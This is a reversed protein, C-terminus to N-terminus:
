RYMWFRVRFNKNLIMRLPPLALYAANGSQITYSNYRALALGTHPGCTPYTGVSQQDFVATSPSVPINFWGLPPFLTGEFGQTYPYTTITPDYSTGTVTVDHATKTLTDTIRVIASKVGLGTASFAINVTMTQGSNLVKPYTNSDTLVFNTPNTGARTISSITLAAGGTNSITLTQAASTTNVITMGFDISGPNVNFSAGTPINGMTIQINPRQSSLTGTGTPASSDLQWNEVMNAGSVSYQFGSGSSSGTGSSGYNCEVLVLLNNGSYPYDTIDVNMWANATPATISADYVLTAGSIMNAWTDASLSTATVTKLYIKTPIAATTAITPYWGLNNVTGSLPVETSLFLNASREFGYYTTVPRRSTTTETGITIISSNHPTASVTNTASSEGTPSSYVATVYYTYTTGNIVSTDDYAVGTQTTLYTSNRYIKYGTLTTGAAPVAATWSLSVKANTGNATLTGPANFVANPWAIYDVWACDSGSTVSGDKMYEWKLIHDGGTINFAAMSWAVEGSWQGKVVGDIYFKLYDYGSESSVKYFFSVQGTVEPVTLQMATSQSHTITGSKASKAGNFYTSTDISWSANGSLIWPYSAFNNEFNEDLDFLPDLNSYTFTISNGASSGINTLNLNGNSDDYLYPKPNTYNNILTRGAEVSFYASSVDGNVTTTGNPRYVYVEDPPGDANGSAATNIRYVLLGSGPLSSEFTGTKKRYELVFYQGSNPSNIRYCNNTSTALSNLTYTGPTSIVPISSIWLGYKYKMYAGMHQPPNQDSEMIDWSGVPSVPQTTYHYLDPAGLSHFMEHCLVGVGRSAMFLSLQFNYDYVRKGNIYAYQSYLSWRHPWLLEAWGDSNGQIIFCVNDVKGDGDADVTLTSPIGSSVGNVANVLLTHERSTSNSSTYGDPNTTADYPSYYARPHSDQYSLVTTSPAPYFTTSINLQGYSAESFYNQMTNGSMGNFMSSYTTIPDTFESQDSFRIFIVINNLTGSHPARGEGHSIMQQYRLKRIQGITDPSKNVQPQIGRIAPNDRGVVFPSPAIDKGMQMAYVYWGKSDRMITYGDKDHVWNYFEDGSAFLNLVSGDPQQLTIPQYTVYAGFLLSTGLLFISLLLLQLTFNKM